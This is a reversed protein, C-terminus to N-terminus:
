NKVNGFGAISFRENAAYETVPTVFHGAGDNEFFVISGGSPCSCEINSTDGDVYCLLGGWDAKWEQLMYYVFGHTGLFSDTHSRIFCGADMKMVRFDETLFKGDLNANIKREIVETVFNQIFDTKEAVESRHFRAMYSEEESPMLRAGNFNFVHKYHEPRHQDHAVFRQQKTFGLLEIQREKEEDLVFINRKPLKIM